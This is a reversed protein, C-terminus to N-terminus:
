ERKRFENVISNLCEIAMLLAAFPISLYICGMPIRMAPSLQSLNFISLYAGEKIIVVLFIIILSENIFTLIQKSKEPLSSKFFELGIHEGYKLALSAGLFSTWIFLYRLLEESWILPIKWIFRCFIQLGAIVVIVLLSIGVALKALEEVFNTIKQGIKM